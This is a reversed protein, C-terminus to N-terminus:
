VCTPVESIFDSYKDIIENEEADALPAEFEDGSHQQQHQSTTKKTDSGATTASPATTATTFQVSSNLSFAKMTATVEVVDVSAEAPENDGNGNDICSNDEGQVTTLQNVTAANLADRESSRSYSGAPLVSSSSSAASTAAISTPPAPPRRQMTSWM